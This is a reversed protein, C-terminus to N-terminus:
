GLTCLTSANGMFAVHIMCGLKVANCTVIVIGIIVSFELRCREKTRESLCYDIKYGRVTWNAADLMDARCDTPWPPYSLENFGWLGSCMFGLPDPGGSFSFRTSLLVDEFGFIDAGIHAPPNTTHNTTILLLNRRGSLIRKTYKQVCEETNLYELRGITGQLRTAVYPIPSDPHSNLLGPEIAKGESYEQGAMFFRNMYGYNIAAVNHKTQNLFGDTVLLSTYDNSDYAKFVM